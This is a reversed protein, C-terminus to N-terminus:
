SRFFLTGGLDVLVLLPFKKCCSLNLSQLCEEVETSFIKSSRIAVDLRKFLGYSTIKEVCADFNKTTCGEVFTELIEYDGETLEKFTFTQVTDNDQTISLSELQQELPVQSKVLKVLHNM